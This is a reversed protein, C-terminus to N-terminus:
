LLLQRAGSDVGVMHGHSGYAYTHLSDATVSGDRQPHLHGPEHGTTSTLRNTGSQYNYSTSYANETKTLRNGNKDYSYGKSGWPGSASTLRYLDDYGYSRSYSGSIATINFEDDHTYSTAIPGTANSAPRYKLDFARTLSLANGFAGSSQPGFPYYAMGSMITQSSGNVVASLTSALKGIVTNVTYAVQRGDPHTIDGHQRKQRLHLRHHLAHSSITITENKERGTKFYNFTTTGASDSVMTLRGIGYSSALEDYTLTVNYAGIPYVITSLRNLADYTRTTTNSLADTETLTNGAPDYTRDTTGSDPSVTRRLGGFDDFTYTTLHGEPDTVQTLNGHSDYGFQTTVPIAGDLLTTSQLRNLADYAHTTYHSGSTYPHNADDLYQLNGADDYRYETFTADPNITKWLRNHDDYAFETIRYQTYSGGQWQYYEEKTKNGHKDWATVVKDGHAGLVSEQEYETIRGVADFTYNVVNGEPQIIYDLRGNDDFFTQTTITETEAGHPLHRSRFLHAM